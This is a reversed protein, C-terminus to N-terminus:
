LAGGAINDAHNFYCAIFLAFPLHWPQLTRFFSYTIIKYLIVLHRAQIDWTLAAGDPEESTTANQM